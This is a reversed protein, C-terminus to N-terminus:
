FVGALSDIAEPELFPEDGQINIVIDCDIDSVAEAICDTGTSHSSDTLVAKGGLEQVKDLIAQHDTAILLDDLRKAKKANEYVLQILSFGDIERLAKKPLRTSEYRAPIVGIVRCM